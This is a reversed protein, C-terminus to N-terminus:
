CGQSAEDSETTEVLRLSRARPLRLPLLCAADAHLWPASGCRITPTHRTRNRLAVLGQEVCWIGREDGGGIGVARKVVGGYPKQFAAAVDLETHSGLSLLAAIKDLPGLPKESSSGAVGHRQIEM